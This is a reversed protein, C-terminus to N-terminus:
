VISPVRLALPEIDGVDWDPEDRVDRKEWRDLMAELRQARDVQPLVRARLSAPLADALKPRTSSRTAM